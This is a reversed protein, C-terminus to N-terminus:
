RKLCVLLKKQKAQNCVSRKLIMKGQVMLIVSLIKLNIFIRARDSVILANTGAVAALHAFQPMLPRLAPILDNPNTNQLWIV